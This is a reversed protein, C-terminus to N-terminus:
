INITKKIKKTKLKLYLFILVGVLVLLFEIILRQELTILICFVFSYITVVFSVFFLILGIRVYRYLISLLKFNTELKSAIEQYFSSTNKLIILEKEFYGEGITKIIPLAPINIFKRELIIVLTFVLSFILFPFVWLLYDPLFKNDSYGISALSVIGGLTLTSFSTNVLDAINSRYLDCMRKYEEISVNFVSVTLRARNSDKAIERIDEDSLLDARKNTEGM